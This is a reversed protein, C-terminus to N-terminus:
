LADGLISRVADVASTGDQDEINFLAWRLQRVSMVIPAQLAYLTQRAPYDDVISMLREFTISDKTHGTTGPGVTLSQAHIRDSVFLMAGAAFLREAEKRTVRHANSVTDLTAM